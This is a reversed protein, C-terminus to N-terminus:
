RQAMGENRPGLQNSVAGALAVTVSAVVSVLEYAMVSVSANVQAIAADRPANPAVGVATTEHCMAVLLRM